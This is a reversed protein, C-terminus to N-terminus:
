QSGQYENVESRSLGLHLIYGSLPRGINLGQEIEFRGTAAAHEQDGNLGPILSVIQRPRKKPIFNALHGRKPVDLCQESAEVSTSHSKTDHCGLRRLYAQINYSITAKSARTQINQTKLTSKSVRVKELVALTNRRKSRRQRNSSSNQDGSFPRRLCHIWRLCDLGPHGRAMAPNNGCIGPTPSHSKAATSRTRSRGHGYYRSEESRQGLRRTTWRTEERAM